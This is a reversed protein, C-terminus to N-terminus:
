SSLIAQYSPDALNTQMDLPSRALWLHHVKPYRATAFRPRLIASLVRSHILLSNELDHISVKRSFTPYRRCQKNPFNTTELQAPLVHNRRALIPPDLSSRTKGPKTIQREYLNKLTQHNVRMIKTGNTAYDRVRQAVLRPKVFQLQVSVSPHRPLGGM